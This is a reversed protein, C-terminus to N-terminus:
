RIETYWPQQDQDQTRRADSAIAEDVADRDDKLIRASLTESSTMPTTLCLALRTSIAKKMYGPLKAPDAPRALYTLYVADADTALRDGEISWASDGADVSIVRVLDSPLQYFYAPGFAPVAVLQNLAARTRGVTWDFLSYIEEIAQGLYLNCYRALASGEDLDAITGKGLRGLAANCIEVWSSSYVVAV